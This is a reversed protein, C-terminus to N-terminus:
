SISEIQNHVVPLRLYHPLESLIKLLLTRLHVPTVVANQCTGSIIITIKLDLVFLHLYQKIFTGLEELEATKTTTANEIELEITQVEIM